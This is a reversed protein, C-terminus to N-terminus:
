AHIIDTQTIHFVTTCKPRRYTGSEDPQPNKKKCTIWTNVRVGHEGKRVQRGNAKWAQFTFVNVRPEIDQEPIGKDTFGQFIAPYNTLAQSTTARTLAEAQQQTPM